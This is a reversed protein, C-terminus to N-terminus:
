VQEVNEIRDAISYQVSLKKTKKSLAIKYWYPTQYGTQFLERYKSELEPFYTKIAGMVLQKSDSVETGFLTVSAPLIYKVGMSAFTSFFRELQEMTDSIYPLLPMLSIGTHLGEAVTKQVAKCRLSPKTAGKEFIQAVEDDLSSFSFSVVVGRGLSDQLESPLIAERDIQQLLDYDREILDSKTIIHVPFRYKLIVELAQRTMAYKKDVPLYPDTASSLVIFGYQERKKLNFLQRDLVEIGNIKVSLNEELNTGYKSGRIYCYLCNFSCSSYLNLTYDDLFWPDRNKTKNLISKVEIEKPM